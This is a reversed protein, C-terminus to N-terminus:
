GCNKVKILADLESAKDTALKYAEDITKSYCKVKGSYNGKANVSIEVSNQFELKEEQEVM